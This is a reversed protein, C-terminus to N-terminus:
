EENSDRGVLPLRGFTRGLRGSVQRELYEPLLLMLAALAVFVVGLLTDGGWLLRVGYLAVPTALALTMLWSVTGVIGLVM